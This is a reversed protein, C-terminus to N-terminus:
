NTPKRKFILIHGLPSVIWRHPSICTTFSLGAAPGEPCRVLRQAQLTTPSMKVKQVVM